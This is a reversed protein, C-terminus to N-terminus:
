LREQLLLARRQFEKLGFLKRGRNGGGGRSAAQLYGSFSVSPSEGRRRKRSLPRLPRPALPSSSMEGPGSGVLAKPACWHAESCGAYRRQTGPHSGLVFCGRCRDSGSSSASYDHLRIAMRSSLGIMACTSPRGAPARHRWIDCGEFTAAWSFGAVM